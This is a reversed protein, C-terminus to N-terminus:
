SEVWCISKKIFSTTLLIVVEHGKNLEQQLCCLSFLFHLIGSVIFVNPIVSFQSFATRILPAVLLCM